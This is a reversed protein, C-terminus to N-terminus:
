QLQTRQRQVAILGLLMLLWTAFSGGSSSAASTDPAPTNNVLPNTNSQYEQLATKGDNDKDSAADSADLPNLGYQLEWGDSLGDTDTDAIDPKTGATFEQLATLGDNDSDTLADSSTLPDLGFQVEWGDPMGDTDSDAQNALTGLLYEQLNTLGDADKDLAADAADEADLGQETEYDDPIGDHDTDIGAKLRYNVQEGAISINDIRVCYNNTFCQYFSDGQKWAATSVNFAQMNKVHRKLQPADAFTDLSKNIEVIQLGSNLKTFENTSTKAWSNATNGDTDFWRNEILLYHNENGNILHQHLYAAEAVYDNGDAIDHSTLSYLGNQQASTPRLWKAFLWKEVASPHIALAPEAPQASLMYYGMNYKDYYYDSFGLLLHGLEHTWSYMGSQAISSEPLNNYVRLNTAIDNFVTTQPAADNALNQLSFPYLAAQEAIVGPEFHGLGEVMSLNTGSCLGPGGEYLLVAGNLLLESHERNNTNIDFDEPLFGHKLYADTLADKFVQGQDCYYRNDFDNLTIYQQRNKLAAGEDSSRLWGFVVFELQIRGGSIDRFYKAVSKDSHNLFQSVEEATRPQYGEIPQGDPNNPNSLDTAPNYDAWDVMFVPIKIVKDRQTVECQRFVITNNSDRTNGYIVPVGGDLLAIENASNYLNGSPQFLWNPAACNDAAQVTAPLTLYSLAGVLPLLRCLRSSLFSM